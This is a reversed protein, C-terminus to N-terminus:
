GAKRIEFVVNRYVTGDIIKDVIQDRLVGGIKRMAGQSRWNSEGIVFIVCDVFTFAHDLMLRKVEANTSGGWYRRALFTWGIEIERAVPDHGHYRSSGIIAGTAREIFAFSSQWSLAEDFFKRFVPEQWRTHFPHLEWILPDAAVAFLGAWDDAQLPRILINRGVLTPQLDPPDIELMMM